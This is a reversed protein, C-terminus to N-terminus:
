LDLRSENRTFNYHARTQDNVLQGILHSCLLHSNVKLLEYKITTLNSFLYLWLFKRSKTEDDDAMLMTPALAALEHTLSIFVFSRTATVCMNTNFFDLSCKVNLIHQISRLASTSSSHPHFSSEFPTVVTFHLWQLVLHSRLPTPFYKIQQLYMSWLM